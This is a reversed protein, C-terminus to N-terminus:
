STHNVLVDGLKAPIDILYKVGVFIDHPQFEFTLEM